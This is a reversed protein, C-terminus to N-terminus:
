NLKNRRLNLLANSLTSTAQQFRYLEVFGAVYVAGIVATVALAMLNSGIFAKGMWVVTIAGLLFAAVSLKKTM